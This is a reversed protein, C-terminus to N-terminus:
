GAAAAEDSQETQLQRAAVALAILAILVTSGTGLLRLSLVALAAAPRPIGLAMLAGLGTIETIGIETPIPVLIVALVMVAYVSMVRLFSLHIGDANLIADLWIVYILMYVATPALNWLTRLRLLEEVAMFFQDSAGILKQRWPALRPTMHEVRWNILAWLLILVVVWAGVIGLVVWRLWPVGPLGLVLAVVVALLSELGLMATTATTSRITARLSLHQMRELLYNQVYVGAPLSKTVEGGAFAVILQRPTVHIGLQELLDRWVLIRAGLYPFTLLLVLWWTEGVITAFEASSHRSVGLYAVYALTGLGVLLPIVISLDIRERFRRWRTRNQGGADSV